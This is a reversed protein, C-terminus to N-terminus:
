TFVGSQPVSIVGNNAFTVNPVAALIRWDTGALEEGYSARVKGPAVIIANTPSRWTTFTQVQLGDVPLAVTLATADFTWDAVASGTQVVSVVLVPPTPESVSTQCDFPPASGAM